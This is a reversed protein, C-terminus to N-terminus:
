TLGLKVPVVARELKWVHLCVIFNGTGKWPCSTLLFFTQRSGCKMRKYSVQDTNM